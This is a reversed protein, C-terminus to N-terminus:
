PSFRSAICHPTITGLDLTDVDKSEFPHVILPTRVAQELRIVVRKRRLVSRPQALLLHLPVINLAM